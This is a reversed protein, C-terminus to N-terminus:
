LFFLELRLHILMDHLIHWAIVTLAGYRLGLYRAIFPAVVVMLGAPGQYLHGIVFSPVTLLIVAWSMKKYGRHALLLSPWVYCVDEWGVRFLDIPSGQLMAASAAALTKQFFEPFFYSIIFKHVFFAWINLLVLYFVGKFFRKGDFKFLEPHVTVCLAGFLLVAIYFSIEIM